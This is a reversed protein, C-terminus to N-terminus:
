ERSVDSYTSPILRRQNEDFNNFSLFDNHSVSPVSFLLSVRISVTGVVEGKDLGRCGLKPKSSLIAHESLCEALVHVDCCRWQDM